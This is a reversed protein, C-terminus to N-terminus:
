PAAAIGNVLSMEWDNGQNPDYVTAGTLDLAWVDRDVRWPFTDWYLGAKVTLSNDTGSTGIEPGNSTFQIRRYTGNGVANMAKQLETYDDFWQVVAIDLNRQARAIATPYLVGNLFFLQQIGNKLTFKVSEFDNRLTSGYVSDDLYMSTYAPNILNLFDDGPALPTTLGPTKAGMQFAMQGMFDATLMASTTGRVIELVIQDAYLAAVHYAATDNYMEAGMGLLTDSSNTPTFPWTYAPGGTATVPGVSYGLLWSLIEFTAPMKMGKLESIESVIISEYYAVFSDRMLKPKYRNVKAEFLMPEIPVVTTASQFVLATILHTAPTTGNTGRTVTWTTTGQGGTVQMQESDVMIYYNGSAPFGAASTVSITTAGSSSIASALTTYGPNTNSASLRGAESFVAL